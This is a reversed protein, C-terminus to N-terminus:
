AARITSSRPAPHLAQRRRARSRGDPDESNEVLISTCACPRHRAAERAVRQATGTPTPTARKSCAASARHAARHQHRPPSAPRTSSPGPRHSGVTPGMLPAALGSCCTPSSSTAHTRHRKWLAAGAMAIAVSLAVALLGSTAILCCAGAHCPQTSSRRRRSCWSLPRLLALPLHGTRIPPPRALRSAPTRRALDGRRSPAAIAIGLDLVHCLWAVGTIQGSIPGPRM